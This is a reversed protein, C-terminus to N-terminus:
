LHCPSTAVISTKFGGFAGFGTAPKVLDGGGGFVGHSDTQQSTATPTGFSGFMSNIAKSDATTTSGLSLGGFGPTADADSMSAEQTITPAVNDSSITNTTSFSGQSFTQSTAAPGFASFANSSSSGSGGGSGFANLGSGAFAGFGTEPKASSFASNTNNNAQNTQGFAGLSGQGFAPQGFSLQGFSSGGFGMKGFATTQQGGGFVSAPQNFSSQGFTSLSAPTASETAMDSDKPEQSQSPGQVTSSSAGPSILGVYRKTHEAHWGQLSGDNLYAYILPAGAATDTLDAELALLITDDTSKDLPLTLPNDQSQRFWQNGMNGLIELDVSSYDGVVALSKNEEILAADVDWKQFNLIYANQQTRDNAPFPHDPSVFTM